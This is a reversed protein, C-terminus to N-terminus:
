VEERAFHNYIEISGKICFEELGKCYFYRNLM